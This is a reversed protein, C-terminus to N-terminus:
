KHPLLSYKRWENSVETLLSYKSIPFDPPLSPPLLSKLSVNLVKESKSPHNVSVWFPSVLYAISGPSDLVRLFTHNAGKFSNFNLLLFHTLDAQSLVFTPFIFPALMWSQPCASFLLETSPPLSFLFHHLYMNYLMYHAEWVGTSVLIVLIQTFGLNRPVSLTQMELLNGPWASAVVRLVVTRSRSASHVSKVQIPMLFGPRPAPSPLPPIFSPNEFISSAPIKKCIPVVSLTLSSSWASPAFDKIIFFPSSKFGWPPKPRQHSRPMLGMSALTCLNQPNSAPSQPLKYWPAETYEM